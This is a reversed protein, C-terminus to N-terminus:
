NLIRRLLLLRMVALLYINTLKFPLVAHAAEKKQIVLHVDAIAMM